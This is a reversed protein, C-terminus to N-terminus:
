KAQAQGRLYILPKADWAVHDWKVELVLSTVDCASVNARRSVPSPMCITTSFPRTNKKWGKDWGSVRSLRCTVHSSSNHQDREEELVNKTDTIPIIETIFHSYITLRQRHFTENKFVTECSCVFQKLYNSHLNKM